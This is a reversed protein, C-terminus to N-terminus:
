VRRPLVPRQRPRVSKALQAVLKGFAPGANQRKEPVLATIITAALAFGAAIAYLAVLGFAEIVYGTAVFGVIGAMRNISSLRTVGQNLADPELLGAV